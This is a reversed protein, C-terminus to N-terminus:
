RITKIFEIFKKHEIAFNGTVSMGDEVDKTVVCGINLNAGKGIILGNSVTSSVGVWTDDGIVTRGGILSNAALLCRDGIKAAHGIHVLNDLKSYEGIITEDWPYVAKDVCTNYQIEVNDKVILKGCHKAFLIEKNETRKFEFGEGSLIAGARIVCNDGIVTNEKIAVFEEITVNDGIKVNKESIHALKSINCNHGIQSNFDYKKTYYDKKSLHNHLKFFSIRPNKSICIGRDNILKAIKDTTVIMRASKSINDVYKENDIFTCFSFDLDASALALSEFEEEKLTDTIDFNDNSRSIIESIRM